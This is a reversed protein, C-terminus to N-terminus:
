PAAAGSCFVGLGDNPLASSLASGGGLHTREDEQDGEEMPAPEAAEAVSVTSRSSSLLTSSLLASASGEAPKLTSSGAALPTGRRALRDYQRASKRSVSPKLRELALEFHRAGIHPRYDTKPLTLQESLATEAASDVLQALDAGSCGECRPDAAILALNVDNALPSKHSLARLIDVREEQNPLPIFIQIGLRGPRLVAPDLVDIRNTAAIVFVNGSNAIGDMETLLQGVVRDAAQNHGSGDRRPCLADFEDFFIICPPSSAAREFVRRVGAESEGVYKNLLEPGRVSLFNADVENALARAVLTKGCGPPGHLLVGVTKNRIAFDKSYVDPHRIREVVSVSLQRRAESLAGVEKWTIEPVALHGKKLAAPLTLKLAIGFDALSVGATEPTVLQPVSASVQPATILASPTTPPEQEVAADDANTSMPSAVSDLSLQGVNALSLTDRAGLQSVLRNVAAIAAEKKLTVLDAPLYGAARRAIARIDCDPALLVDRLLVSLIEYRGQADPVGINIERDFRSRLAQDLDSASSTAGLVVVRKNTKQLSTRLEDMCSRLQASIRLEIGRQASSRSQSIAGLEDIFVICPSMELADDFLRRLTAESEGSFSSVIEPGSIRLLKLQFEGAIAKALTTKGSGPPGHILLGLPAIAGRGLAEWIEAYKYPYEVVERVAQVHKAMGGLDSFTPLSSPDLRSESSWVPNEQDGEGEEGADTTGGGDSQRAGRLRRKKRQRTGRRGTSTPPSRSCARLSSSPSAGLASLRQAVAASEPTVEAPTSVEAVPASAAAAKNKAYSNALAQNLLDFAPRDDIDDDDSDEEAGNKRDQAIREEELQQLASDVASFFPRERQRAYERYRDRMESVLEDLDCVSATGSSNLARQYTDSGRIRARLKGQLGKM